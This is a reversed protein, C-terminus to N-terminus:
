YKGLLWKRNCWWWFKKDKPSQTHYHAYSSNNWTGSLLQPDIFYGPHAQPSFEKILLNGQSIKRHFLISIASDATVLHNTVAWFFTSPL